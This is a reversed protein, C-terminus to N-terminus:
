WQFPKRHAHSLARSEKPYGDVRSTVIYITISLSKAVIEKGQALSCPTARINRSRSRFM